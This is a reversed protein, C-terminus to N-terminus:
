RNPEPGDHRDRRRRRRRPEAGPVAAPVSAPVAAQVAAAGPESAAAQGRRPVAHLLGLLLHLLGPRLPEVLIRPETPQSQGSVLSRGGLVAEAGGVRGRVGVLLRFPSLLAHLSDQPAGACLRPKVTQGPPTRTDIPSPVYTSRRKTPMPLAM